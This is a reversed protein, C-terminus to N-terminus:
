SRLPASPEMAPNPLVPSSGPQAERLVAALKGVETIVEDLHRGVERVPMAKNGAPDGKAMRPSRGLIATLADDYGRGVEPGVGANEEWRRLFGIYFTARRTVVFLTCPRGTALNRVRVSAAAVRLSIEAGLEAASNLLSQAADRAQQDLKGIEDLLESIEIKERGTETKPPATADVVASAALQTGTTDTVVVKITLPREAKVMAGAVHPVLVHDHGNSFIAVSMLALDAAILPDFQDKLHDLYDILRRQIEDGCVLLLFNGDRLAPRILDENADIWPGHNPLLESLRDPDVGRLARSYDLLQGLVERRAEPNKWLKDEVVVFRRFTATGAEVEAFLVDISLVRGLYLLESDGRILEAERLADGFAEHHAIILDDYHREALAQGGIAPLRGVRSLVSKRALKDDLLILHRPLFGM